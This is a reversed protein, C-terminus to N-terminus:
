IERCRLKHLFQRWHCFIERICMLWQMCICDSEDLQRIPRRCLCHVPHVRHVRHEFFLPGFCVCHVPGFKLPGDLGVLARCSVGFVPVFFNPWYLIFLPRRPLWEDSCLPRHHRLLVWCLLCRM